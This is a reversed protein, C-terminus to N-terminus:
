TIIINEPNINKLADINGSLPIIMNKMNEIMMGVYSHNNDGPKGPLDDDSLTEVM